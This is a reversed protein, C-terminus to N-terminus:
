STPNAPPSRIGMLMADANEVQKSARGPLHPRTFGAGGVEVLIAGNSRRIQQDEEKLPPSECAPKYVPRPVSQRNLSTSDWSIMKM